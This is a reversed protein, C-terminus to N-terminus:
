LSALVITSAVGTWLFLMWLSGLDLNEGTKSKCKDPCSVLSQSLWKDEL